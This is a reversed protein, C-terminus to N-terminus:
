MLVARFVAVQAAWVAICSTSPPTRVAEAVAPLTAPVAAPSSAPLPRITTLLTHTHATYTYIHINTHLPAPLSAPVLTLALAYICPSHTRTSALPFTSITNTLLPLCAHDKTACRGRGSTGDLHFAHTGVM